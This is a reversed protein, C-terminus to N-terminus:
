FSLIEELGKEDVSFWYNYDGENKNIVKRYLDNPMYFENFRFYRLQRIFLVTDVEESFLQNILSCMGKHIIGDVSFFGNGLYTARELAQRLKIVKYM